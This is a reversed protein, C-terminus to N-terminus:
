QGDQQNHALPLQVSIVTGQGPTSEIHFAGGLEATRERMSSLGIGAQYGLPLGIGDDRIELQLSDNFELCLQCTNAHAHRVTNTIAELAIRYAAVEAAAPLPPLDDPATLAIHLRGNGSQRAIHEQLASVLGLQDLAAPRLENVLRRIESIASQIEGKLESLLHDATPVDHALYNRATDVKLSLTALQPGLGDHLDRRIRRREEERATVLRERSRQLDHTLQAAYVATGAQRAVNELLRM